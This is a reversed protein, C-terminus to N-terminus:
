IATYCQSLPISPTLSDFECNMINLEWEGTGAFIVPNDGAMGMFPMYLLALGLIALGIILASPQRM